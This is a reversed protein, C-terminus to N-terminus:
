KSWGNNSVQVKKDFNIEKFKTKNTERDKLNSYVIFVTCAIILLFYYFFNPKKM